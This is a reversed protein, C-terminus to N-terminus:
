KTGQFHYDGDKIKFIYGFSHQMMDFGGFHEDVDIHEDNMHHIWETEGNQKDIMMGGSMHGVGYIHGYMHEFDDGTLCVMVSDNHEFYNLMFTTDFESGYCHVQIQEDNLKIVEASALSSILEANTNSKLSSEISITGYYIGEISNVNLDDTKDCAIILLTLISFILINRKKM